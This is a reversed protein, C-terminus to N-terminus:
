PPLQLNVSLPKGGHYQPKSKTEMTLSLLGYSLYPDKRLLRYTILHHTCYNYTTHDTKTVHITIQLKDRLKRANKTRDWSRIGHKSQDIWQRDVRWKFINLFGEEGYWIYQDTEEKWSVSATVGLDAEKSRLNQAITWVLMSCGGWLSVRDIQECRKVILNLQWLEVVM